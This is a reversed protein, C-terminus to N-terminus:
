ISKIITNYIHTLEQCCDKFAQIISNTKSKEDLDESNNMSMTFLIKNELPHTRKYGCLSLVSNDNIMKNSMHAQIISGLTDDFGHWIEKDIVYQMEVLMNIVNQKDGKNYIMKILSPEDDVLKDLENKFGELSDIIIENARIFLDSENLFHQSEITFNYYYPEGQNDRHYYRPGERIEFEKKFTDVDNINKLLIKDQIVQKLLDQNTKYSYSACSVAQWRADEKSISVSPSGYLKLEQPNDDSNTSKMETIISYYTNQFPRFIEKKIKEPVQKNNYNNKDINTILGNQYDASSMVSSKLEYIEFDEATIIRVPNSNDHKINLVFLYKLPNDIVDKPNLYLPILGIRDLLFENHLSTNNVEITIDSNDYTTRFAYTEISSLLTRRIANIITKDLGYEENGKIDLDLKNNTSTDKTLIECTFSDM